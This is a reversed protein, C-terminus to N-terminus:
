PGVTARFVGSSTGALLQGSATLGLSLLRNGPLGDNAQRWTVGEDFSVLLGDGETAAFVTGRRSDQALARVAVMRGAANLVVPRWSREAPNWRALGTQTTALLQGDGLAIIARVPFRDRRDSLPRWRDGDDTSQFVEGEQTGCYVTGDPAVTLSLVRFSTLGISRETWTEGGDSSRFIGSDTAALIAGSKTSLFSHVIRTLGVRRWTNGRDGSRLVGIQTATLIDGKPTAAVVYATADGAPGHASVHAEHGLLLPRWPGAASTAHFLGKYGAAAFAEGSALSVFGSVGAEMPGIPQWGNDDSWRFAGSLGTVYVANREDTSLHFIPHGSLGNNAAAWTAGSDRSRFVTYTWRGENQVAAFMEACRPAALAVVRRGGLGASTWSRGGDRSMSVGGTTAALISKECHVFAEPSSLRDDLEIWTRGADASLFSGAAANVIV